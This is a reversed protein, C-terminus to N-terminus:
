RANGTTAEVGARGAPMHMAPGHHGGFFMMAGILGIVVATAIGFKAVWPPTADGSPSDSATTIRRLRLALMVLCALWVVVIARQATGLWPHGAAGAPRVLTVVLVVAVVLAIGTGLVYGALRRWRPDRRLPLSLVILPIGLGVFFVAGNASHVGIPDYVAGADNQRLPFVGAIVLQLGSIALLAPGAIGGRTTTIGHHLGTAFAIILLGLMIFNLQQAWGANGATLDSIEQGTPSYAPGRYFQQVIVGLVFLPPGAVGALAMAANRQPRAGGYPRVDAPSRMNM